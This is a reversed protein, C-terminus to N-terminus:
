QRSLREIETEAKYVRKNLVETSADFHEVIKDTYLGLSAILNKQLKEQGIELRKQGEKLDNLDARIVKLDEMDERMDKLESVDARMEKLESVDTRMNKMEFLIQNLIQEM